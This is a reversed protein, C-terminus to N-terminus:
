VQRYFLRQGSSSDDPDKPNIGDLRGTLIGVASKSGLQGYGAVNLQVKCSNHM